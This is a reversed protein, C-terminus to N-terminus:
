ILVVTLESVNNGEFLCFVVSLDFSNRRLCNQENDQLLFSKWRQLVNFQIHRNMEKSMDLSVISHSQMQRIYKYVSFLLFLWIDCM